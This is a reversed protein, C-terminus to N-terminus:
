VKATYILYILYSVYIAVLFLGAFRGIKGDRKLRFGLPFLIVTLFLMLPFDRKLIIANVSIDSILGPIGIVVLTNFLNSGIINGLALGTDGKKAAIVSSALEPLSTGIAVITLGIVLDSVGLAVAIETAGYVLLRSSAILLVLGLLLLFINKGISKKPTAIETTEPFEKNKLGIYIQYGIVLAFYLLMIFADLKSIVGDYILGLTLLTSLILLLLDRRVIIKPMPIFAIMATFGLILAINTINSGYANGLILEEANDLASFVSVSLEPASTGFGVVIVGILFSSVGCAMALGSAGEVFREASWILVVLGVLIAIIPILM